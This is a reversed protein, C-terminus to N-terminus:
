PVRPDRARQTFRGLVNGTIRQVSPNSRASRLAPANYDDLGWSWQMSGTAFVLAGRPAATLTMHSVGRANQDHMARWPSEALLTWEFPSHGHICDVEYGLLGPLRDGEMLAIGEFVWHGAAAIVIPNADYTM